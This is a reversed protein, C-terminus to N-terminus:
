ANLEAFIVDARLNGKSDRHCTPCFAKDARYGGLQDVQQPLLGNATEDLHEPSLIEADFLIRLIDATEYYVRGAEMFVSRGAIEGRWDRIVSMPFLEREPEVWTHDGTYPKTLEPGLLELVRDASNAWTFKEAIVRASEEARKAHVDWNAYVDWMAECLEDFDPEWWEGADGYIFYDAKSAGASIPVALEAFSEHGHANTLITPRGLSMAQLPQLGFGEGRSPQLYAHCSAYLDREAEPDLVGTVHTVSPHYYDAHGRMSKMYLRPVPTFQEPHTFVTRFAEYALDVGKRSGRGAILFNFFTTPSASPIYHWLVPDVGLTVLQVNDHYRSFLEVNQPSPVMVLDYEHLTERFAPPLVRSEWMTLISKHQGTYYGELHTPVSMLCLANTPGPPVNRRATIDHALGRHEDPRADDDYLTVGRREIENAIEMGM